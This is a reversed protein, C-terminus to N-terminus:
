RVHINRKSNKAIRRAPPFLLFRSSSLPSPCLTRQVAGITIILPQFSFEKRKANERINVFLSKEKLKNCLLCFKDTVYFFPGNRHFKSSLLHPCNKTFIHALCSSLLFHARPTVLIRQKQM